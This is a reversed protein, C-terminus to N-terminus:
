QLLNNNNIYETLYTNLMHHHGPLRHAIEVPVTHKSEPGYDTAPVGQAHQWPVACWAYGDVINPEAGLPKLKPHSLYQHYLNDAQQYVLVGHGRSKLSHIMAIVHYMLDETRDLISHMEWKLKLELLVDTDQQTWPHGWRSSWSQNQFNTWKGEFESSAMLIPIEIRSLFTLGLVYFTPQNTIYSHKLTTRIIRSNASGGIALSMAQPIQLKEALDQHGLGSAYMEMYSCGNVVLHQFKM